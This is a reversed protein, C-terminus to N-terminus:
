TKGAPKMGQKKLAEYWNKAMAEYGQNSPHVEPLLQPLRFFISHNDVLHIKEESALKQIIPNIEQEVRTTSASAFPFSSNDPVPPITALLIHTKKGSRSKFARFLRIIEKMNTYFDNASIHDHDTRVDNTGLQLCIFDPHNEALVTRKKKLFVLYEKSNFGSRGQNVVKARIGKERLLPKLYKPYGIETISDGACLIIYGSPPSTCSTLFVFFLFILITITRFSTTKFM